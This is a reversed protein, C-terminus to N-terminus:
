GRKEQTLEEQDVMQDVNKFFADMQAVAQKKDTSDVTNYRDFMERTAHGTIAMIVSESVGAKRMNTNFTHRLDHFVLGDREARGTKIGVDLCAKYFSTRIDKLPKGEYLFVHDDHVARPMSKLILYLDNGIPITRPEKDKTDQAELRIARNKLDVKAWTLSLIEGKRMGTYFGTALIAKTHHPM